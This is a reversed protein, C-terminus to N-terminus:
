AAVQTLLALVMVRAPQDAVPVGAALSVSVWQRHSMSAALAPLSSLPTESQMAALMLSAAILRAKKTQYANMPWSHWNFTCWAITRKEYYWKSMPFRLRIMTRASATQARSDAVAMTVGTQIVPSPVACTRSAVCTARDTVTSALGVFEVPDHLVLLTASHGTTPSALIAM